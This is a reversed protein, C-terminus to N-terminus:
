DLFENEFRELLLVPLVADVVRQRRLVAFIRFFPEVVGNPPEIVMLSGSQEPEVDGPPARRDGPLEDFSGATLTGHSQRSGFQQCAGRPGLCNPLRKFPACLRLPIRWSDAPPLGIDRM